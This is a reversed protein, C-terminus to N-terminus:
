AKRWEGDEYIWLKADMGIGFKIGKYELFIDPVVCGFGSRQEETLIEKPECETGKAIEFIQV